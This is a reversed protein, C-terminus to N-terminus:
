ASVRSITRHLNGPGARIAQAQSMYEFSFHEAVRYSLILSILFAVVSSGFGIIGSYKNTIRRARPVPKILTEIQGKLLAEIDVGWTRDTHQIRIFGPLNRPPQLRVWAGEDIIRPTSEFDLSGTTFSVDITQKEPFRKNKFQILYTWNLHLATSVLLKVENYSHFDSFSNLLVSSNDGYVIRATFQVLTADNQSSLRQDLLHHLNEADARTV